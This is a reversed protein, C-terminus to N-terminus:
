MFRARMEAPGYEKWWELPHIEGSPEADHTSEILDDAEDGRTLHVYPAIGDADEVDNPEIFLHCHACKQAHTGDSYGHEDWEPM